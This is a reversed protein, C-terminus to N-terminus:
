AQASMAAPMFTRNGPDRRRFGLSWLTNLCRMEVGAAPRAEERPVTAASKTSSASDTPPQDDGRLSAVVIRANAGANLGHGEVRHLEVVLQRDVGRHSASDSWLARAGEDVADAQLFQQTLWQSNCADRLHERVRAGPAAEERHPNGRLVDSLLVADRARFLHAKGRCRAVASRGGAGGCGSVGGCSGWFIGKM